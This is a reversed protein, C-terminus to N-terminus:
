SPQRVEKVEENMRCLFLDNAATSFTRPCWTQKPFDGATVTAVMYPVLPLSQHVKALHLGDRVILGNRIISHNDFYLRICPEYSQDPDTVIRGRGRSAVVIEAGFGEMSGFVIHEAYEPPDGLEKLGLGIPEKGEQRLFALSKLLGDHHIGHWAALTTSHVIWRPDAHRVCDEDPTEALAQEILAALNISAPCAINHAICWLCFDGGVKM